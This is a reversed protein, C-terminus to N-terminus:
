AGAQETRGIMIRWGIPALGGLVVVYGAVVTVDSGTTQGVVVIVMGLAVLAPLWWAVVRSRAMSLLQVPMGLPLLVPGVSYFALTLPLSSRVRTFLENV